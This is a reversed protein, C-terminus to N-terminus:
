KTKELTARASERQIQRVEGSVWLGDELYKVTVTLAERLERVKEREDTLDTLLASLGAELKKIFEENDAHISNFKEREASLERELLRSHELLGRGAASM